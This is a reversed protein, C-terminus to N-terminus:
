TSERLGLRALWQDVSLLRTQHLPAFEEVEGKSLHNGYREHHADSVEVCINELLVFNPQPLDIRLNLTHGVLRM